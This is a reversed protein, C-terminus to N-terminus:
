VRSHFAAASVYDCHAGVSAKLAPQVASYDVKMLMFKLKVLEVLVKLIDKLGGCTSVGYAREFHDVGTQVYDYGTRVARLLFETSVLNGKSNLPLVSKVMDKRLLKFACDIDKIDTPFGLIARNLFKMGNAFLARKFGEARIKRFGLIMEKDPNEVALEVFRYLENLDFQLDADTFFVWDYQVAKFGTNVAGGYGQNKQDVVKIQPIKKAYEHAIQSTKDKSGDNVIIIEYRIAVKPIIELAKEILLPLNEEENYCPFFVSLENLKKTQLITSMGM